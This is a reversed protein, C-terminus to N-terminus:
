GMPDAPLHTHSSQKLGVEGHLPQVRASFLSAVHWSVAQSPPQKRSPTHSKAIFSDMHRKSPPPAHVKQWDHESSKHFVHKQPLIHMAIHSCPQQLVSEASHGSSGYLSLYEPSQLMHWCSPSWQWCHKVWDRQLVMYSESRGIGKGPICDSVGVGVDAGVDASVGKGVDATGVAAGVAIAVAAEVAIAVTNGVFEDVSSAGTPSSSDPVVRRAATLGTNRNTHVNM